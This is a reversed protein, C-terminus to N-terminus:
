VGLRKLVLKDLDWTLLECLLTVCTVLLKDCLWGILSDGMQCTMEDGFWVIRLRLGTM